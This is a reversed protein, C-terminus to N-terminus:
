RAGGDFTFALAEGDITLKDDPCTLVYRAAAKPLQWGDTLMAVARAKDGRKGTKHMVRLWRVFGPAYVLGSSQLTYDM